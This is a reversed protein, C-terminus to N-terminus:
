KKIFTTSLFEGGRSKLHIFYVGAKMDQAPFNFLQQMNQKNLAHTKLQKGTADHISLHADGLFPGSWKVQLQDRVPNPLVELKNKGADALTTQNTTLEAGPHVSKAAITNVVVEATDRAVAGENDTVKLEFHYIGDTMGFIVPTSANAYWMTYSAPGDIKTWSFTIPWGDPDYSGWGNLLVSNASYYMHLWGNAIPLQSPKIEFSVDSHAFANQQDTVTLRFTYKGPVLNSVLPTSANANIINYSDPGAFKRWSFTIPGGDPDMSGWGNFLLSTRSYYQHIWGNSIPPTNPIADPNFEWLDSFSTLGTSGGAVYGRNGIGFAVNPTRNTGAFNTKKTWSKTIGDFQWFDDTGAGVYGYNGVSFASSARISLGGFDTTRLWTDGVPSYEWIEKTGVIGVYQKQGLSFTVLGASSNGPFFSKPYWLDTDPSYAWLDNNRGLVYALNTYTFSIHPASMATPMNGKKIWTNTAVNMEWVDFLPIPTFHPFAGLGLGGAIFIRNNVVFNAPSQRESFPHDQIRIWRSLSKDYLWFDRKGESPNLGAIYAADGVGWVILPAHFNEFAKKSAWSDGSPNYEFFSNSFFLPFGEFGTGVYGKGSISFSIGSGNRTTPIAAKQNWANTLANYEWVDNGPFGAAAGMYAKGAVSFVFPRFLGSIMGPYDAKQIWSDTAPDYRWLDRLATREALQGLAVYGQGDISFGVATTRAPGAFDAKRTWSDFDPDYQWFDQQFNGAGIYGKGAASFAVAGARGGGPFDARRTWSNYFPDFEWFDNKNESLGLYGKSGISFGVAFGRSEGPFSAYQTWANQTPDFQWFERFGALAAYGKGNIEFGVPNASAPPNVMPLSPKQIWAGPQAQICPCLLWLLILLFIGPKCYLGATLPYSKM